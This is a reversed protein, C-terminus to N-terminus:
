HLVRSALNLIANVYSNYDMTQAAAPTILKDTIIPAMLGIVIVVLALLLCILSMSTPEKIEMNEKPKRLWVVYFVRMYAILATASSLVLVLALVLSRDLFANFLLLKSFFVNLPPIGVLSLTAIALSFTAIPMRRGLGALDDINRSGIAHIFVGAALFLLAKAIAHNVLHFLAAQLGLQTGLGVAMFLYGMHMITSYAILKKVDRQVNMMLAGFLASVAGLVIVITSLMSVVHALGPALSGGYVTYLFRILAYVGVNVVLGSLIASIPSPAAPHAEPLWFHNPVIAAKILFAWTALALAVGSALIMNGVPTGTVPFQIGHVKASLDAFNVTGVAGYFVGLALFYMTTGVAGILAYKLGATVSDGRDRYFMVLAYAAISTVEIMVFLNFADGTLLVGLLGAELGLYLTYYWELSEEHELYRYSYIAILFMLGATVLTILAGLRDVEYIIGIPAIWKGFTYVLPTSSSYALQFLKFASILTLGTALLAYAQIIKRNGKILISFLPLAFAFVIPIIPTLGVANM